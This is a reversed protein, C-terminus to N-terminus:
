PLNVGILVLDLKRQGFKPLGNSKLRGTKSRVHIQSERKGVDPLNILSDRSILLSGLNLVIIRSRQEVQTDQVSLFSVVLLSDLCLLLGNGNIILNRFAM